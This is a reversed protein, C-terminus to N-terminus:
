ATMRGRGALDVLVQQRFWELEALGAVVRHADTKDTREADLKFDVVVECRDDHVVDPTNVGLWTPPALNRGQRIGV